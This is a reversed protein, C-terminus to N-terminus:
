STNLLSVMIRILLSMINYSVFLGDVLHSVILRSVLWYDAAQGVLGGGTNQCGTVLWRHRSGAAQSGICYFVISYLVISCRKNEVFLLSLM